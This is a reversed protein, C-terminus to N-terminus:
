RNMGVKLTVVYDEKPIRMGSQTPPNVAEVTVKYRDFVKTIKGM